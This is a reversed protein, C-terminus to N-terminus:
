KVKFFGYSFPRVFLKEAPTLLELRVLKDVEIELDKENIQYDKAGANIIFVINESQDNSIKNVTLIRDDIINFDIIRSDNHLAPHEKKLALLEKEQDTLSYPQPGAIYALDGLGVMFALEMTRREIEENFWLHLAGMGGNEVLSNRYAMAEVIGAVKKEKVILSKLEALEYDWLGQYGGKTVWSIGHASEAEIYQNDYSSIRSTIIDRHQDWTSGSYFDPADITMGDFDFGMWFDLINAVEQPWKSPEGWYAQPLNPSEDEEDNRDNWVGLFYKGVRTNYIWQFEDAENYLEEQYPVKYDEGTDSWLFWQHERSQLDSQATKWDAAEQGFYCLNIFCTVALGKKHAIEILKKLQDNNGASPDINYNDYTDLGGYASGSHPPGWIQIGTFGESKITDLQKSVIEPDLSLFQAWIAKNEPKLSVIKIAGASKWWTEPLQAFATSISLASLLIIHGLKKM